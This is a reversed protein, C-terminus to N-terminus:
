EFSYVPINIEVGGKVLISKINKLKEICDKLVPIVSVNLRYANAPKEIYIYLIAAWIFIIFFSFTYIIFLTRGNSIYAPFIASNAILRPMIAFFYSHYLYAGYSLLALVDIIRLPNKIFEMFTLKTSYIRDKTDFVYIILSLILIVATPAIYQYFFYDNHKYLIMLYATLAFLLLLSVPKMILKFLNNKSNQTIANLLMGCFFYDLNAWSPFYVSTHWMLGMKNCILRYSLGLVVFLIFIGFHYKKVKSLIFKYGIPALLYLQFITSVFWLAGIPDIGPTGNYTFTLLPILAKSKEIFFWDPHIFLFVVFLVFLYMPLIRILRSIWFSLIGNLDTQYKNNYFGKGLLYGSLLFFIGMATWAPTFAVTLFSDEVHFRPLNASIVIRSHTGLVCFLAFVRLFNFIDPKNKYTKEIKDM